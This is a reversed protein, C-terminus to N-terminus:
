DPQSTRGPPSSPSHASPTTSTAVDGHRLAEYEAIEAELPGRMVEVSILLAEQM